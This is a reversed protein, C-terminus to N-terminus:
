KEANETHRGVFYEVVWGIVIVVSGTAVGMFIGGFIEGAGADEDIYMPASVAMVILALIGSIRRVIKKKAGTEAKEAEAM